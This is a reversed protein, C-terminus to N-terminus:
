RVKADHVAAFGVLCPASSRVQIRTRVSVTHVLALRTVESFEPKRKSLISTMNINQWGILHTM